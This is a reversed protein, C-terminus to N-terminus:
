KKAEQPKKLPKSPLDLSLQSPKITVNITHGLYALFPALDAPTAFISLTLLCPVPSAPDVPPKFGLSKITAIGKFM